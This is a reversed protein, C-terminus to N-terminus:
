SLTDHRSGSKSQGTDNRMGRTLTLLLSEIRQQREQLNIMEDKLKSVPLDRIDELVREMRKVSSAVDDTAVLNESRSGALRPAGFLRALPSPSPPVKPRLPSSPSPPELLHLSEKPKRKPSTGPSPDFATTSRPVSTGRHRPPTRSGANKSNFYFSERSKLSQLAPREHDSGDSDNFIDQAQDPEIEVEFIADYLTQARTGVLAEILPMTKLHRPLSNYFNSATKRSNERLDRGLAFYREYLSIVILVPFSTLRILFVNVTHLVRPSLVRSLPFLVAYAVINFPPLYSFLADSKVGELTAITFQFLYERSANEDIRAFTNSLISILITLLLTNSLAAFGTMLVPGFVEHFSAAQAFSLYTNGFWIQVMLWMIAKVTWKGDALSWLTFLLGSFCVAAIGMFFVFEVVMGRLALIVVNHKIAFFALRPFLICAGCALIDFALESTQANNQWLGKMRLVFYVLFVLLFASDFVNWMNAIYIQWGHERTSAYEGLLFSFAFVLFVVEWKGV